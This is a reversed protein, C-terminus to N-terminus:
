VTTVARVGEYMAPLGRGCHRRRQPLMMGRDAGVLCCVGGDRERSFVGAAAHVRRVGCEVGSLLALWAVRQVTQRLADPTLAFVAM